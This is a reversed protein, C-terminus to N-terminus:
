FSFYHVADDHIKKVRAVGGPTARGGFSASSEIKVSVDANYQLIQIIM